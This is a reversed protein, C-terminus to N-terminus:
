VIDLLKEQFVIALLFAFGEKGYQAVKDFGLGVNVKVGNAPLYLGVGVVCGSVM